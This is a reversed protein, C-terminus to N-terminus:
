LSRANLYMLSLNCVKNKEIQYTDSNQKDCGDIVNPLLDRCVKRKCVIIEPKIDQGVLGRVTIVDANSKAESKLRKHEDVEIKM